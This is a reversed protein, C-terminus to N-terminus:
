GVGSKVHNRHMEQEGPYQNTDEKWGEKKRKMNKRGEVIEMCKTVLALVLLLVLLTQSKKDQTHKPRRALLERGKVKTEINVKQVLCDMEESIDKM